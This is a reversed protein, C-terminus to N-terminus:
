LMSIMIMKRAVKIEVVKLEIDPPPAEIILKGINKDSPIGNGTATEICFILEQWHM